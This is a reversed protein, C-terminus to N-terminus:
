GSNLKLKGRPRPHKRDRAQQCRPQQVSEGTHMYEHAPARGPTHISPTSPPHTSMPLRVDLCCLTASIHLRRLTTSLTLM